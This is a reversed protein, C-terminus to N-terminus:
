MKSVNNSINQPVSTLGRNKCWLATEEGCDCEIPVNELGTFKTYSVCIHVM